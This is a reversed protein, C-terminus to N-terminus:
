RGGPTATITLNAPLDLAQPSAQVGNNPNSGTSNSGAVPIQSYDKGLLVVIDATQGQPKPKVQVVVGPLLDTITKLTNIGKGGSYDIVTSTQTSVAWIPSLLDLGNQDLQKNVQTMPATLGTGNQVQVKLGEARLQPFDRGQKLWAQIDSYDFQGAYPYLIDGTAYSSSGVLFNSTSLIQPVLLVNNILSKGEGTFYTLLGQAEDVSLSTRMNGQLADMLDFFKFLIAPSAAKEKVAKIVNMQRKSRGFDSGDQVSHRSRAYEIAKEGTMHQMGADFHIHMVSADIQPDDNAPYDYDDFTTEVNVDVGGIADIFKRFGDFSFTVWYDVKTGTVQEVIDKLLNVAADTQSSINGSQFQYRSSLGDSSQRGMVYAFASNIKGYFGAKPGGYPVFVYLDRPINVMTVANKAPDYTLELITDTLYAGDHQGGGYGTVLISIQEGRQIKKVIEPYNPAPTATPPVPTVTPVPTPTTNPAPTATPAAAATLQASSKTPPVTPASTATPPAQTLLSEENRGNFSNDLFSSVRIYTFIGFGILVVALGILTWMWWRMKKKPAAGAAAAKGGTKKAPPIAAPPIVPPQNAPEIRATQQQIYRNRWNENPDPNPNPTGPSNNQDNPHSV